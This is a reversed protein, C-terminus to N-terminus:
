KKVLPGNSVIISGAYQTSFHTYGNSDISYNPNNIRSYSNTTKDYSYFVLNNTNMGTLDLKAAIQVAQGWSGTQDFHLVSTTNSFYKDFFNEVREVNQGTVYGSVKMDQKIDSPNDITIRVQVAGNAVTDHQFSLGALQSWASAQVTVEGTGRFHAVNQGNAKATAALDKMNSSTQTVSTSTSTTSSSSSSGGSSGGSSGSSGSGGGSGPTVVPPQTPPTVTPPTPPTGITLWPSYDSVDSSRFYNIELSNAQVTFRYEGYGTDFYQSLPIGLYEKSAIGIGQSPADAIYPIDSMNWTDSGVIDGSKNYCKVTFSDYDSYDGFNSWTAYYVLDGLTDDSKWELGIPTPRQADPLTYHFAGSVAFPARNSGEGIATVAFYYYGAVTFNNSLDISFTSYSDPYDPNQVIGSDIWNDEANPPTETDNRYLRWAYSESNEINQAVQRPWNDWVASGTNGDWRPNPAESSGLSAAANVSICMGGFMALVLAVTIWLSIIKSSTKRIAM